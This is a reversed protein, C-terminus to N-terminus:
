IGILCHHMQLKVSSDWDAEQRGPLVECIVNGHCGFRNCFGRELSRARQLEMHSATHWIWCRMETRRQTIESSFPLLCAEREVQLTIPCTAVPHVFSTFPQQLHPLSLDLLQISDTWVHGWSDECCVGGWLQQVLYAWVKGNILINIM